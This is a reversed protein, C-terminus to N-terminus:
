KGGGGTKKKKGASKLQRLKGGGLEYIRDSHAYLYEQHTVAIVSRGDGALDRLIKCIDLSTRKDLNATPEDALIIDPENILARAIAVRQKQGGSLVAARTNRFGSMGLQKLLKQARERTNKDVSGRIRAPLLVNQYVTEDPLLRFTQFIFGIRRNRVASSLIDLRHYLKKGQILVKGKQPRTIGSIVNLLTTKGSGSRGTISVLEGPRVLLSLRDLIGTKKGAIRYYKTIEQLELMIPKEPKM